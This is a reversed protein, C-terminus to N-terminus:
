NLTEMFTLKSREMLNLQRQCTNGFYEQVYLTFMKYTTNPMQQCDKSMQEFLKPRDVYLCMLGHLISDVECVNSIYISQEGDKCTHFNQLVFTGYMLEDSLIVKEGYIISPKVFCLLRINMDDQKFQSPAASVKKSDFTYWKRKPRMIHATFYKPLIEEILAGLM